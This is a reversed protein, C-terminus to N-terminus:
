ADVTEETEADSDEESEQDEGLQQTSSSGMSFDLTLGLSAALDEARKRDLLNQEFDTGIAKCIKLPSDLGSAIAARFGTVERVPDWWGMGKPVWDWTVDDFLMGRPLLLDTDAVAMGLRWRTIDDLTEILEARKPGASREFMLHAARSGFWNSFDESFFSMPIDLAKLAVQTMLKLLNISDTYNNGDQVIKVDSGPELDFVKLGDSFDLEYASEPLGDGDKDETPMAGLGMEAERTIFAGFQKALKLKALSYDIGEYVDTLSNLAQVFPSIGRIQDLRDFFGHHVVNQALLSREYELAGDPMRKHVAYSVPIGLPSLKVGNTYAEVNIPRGREVQPTAVRDAEIVQISGRLYSDGGIKLIFVDGDSLRRGEILRILKALGHKRQAHCQYRSAWRQMFLEVRTNFEEDGTTAKFNLAAVYNIHTRIMWAALSFNDLLQHGKATLARRDRDYLRDDASKIRSAPNRRRRTSSALADYHGGASALWGGFERFLTSASM